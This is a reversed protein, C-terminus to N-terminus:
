RLVFYIISIKKKKLYLIYTDLTAIEKMKWERALAEM